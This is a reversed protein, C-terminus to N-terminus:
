NASTQLDQFLIGNDLFFNYLSANEPLTIDFNAPLKGSNDLLLNMFASHNEDFTKLADEAGRKIPVWIDAFSDELFKRMMEKRGPYNNAMLKNFNSILTERIDAHKIETEYIFDKIRSLEQNLEARQKEVAKLVRQQRAKFSGWAKRQTPSLQTLEATEKKVAIEVQAPTKGTTRRTSEEFLNQLYDRENKLRTGVAFPGDTGKRGFGKTTLQKVRELDGTKIADLIFPEANRALIEDIVDDGITINYQRLISDMQTYEAWAKQQLWIDQMMRAARQPDTDILSKIVRIQSAENVIAGNM